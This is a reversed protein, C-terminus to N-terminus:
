RSPSFDRGDGGALVAPRRRPRGAEGAEFGRAEVTGPVGARSGRVGASGPDQAAGPWSVRYTSETLRNVEEPGRSMAAAAPSALAPSRPRAEHGGSGPRRSRRPAASPGELTLRRWLRRGPLAPARRRTRFTLVQLAVAVAAAARSSSLLLPGVRRSRAPSALRGWRLRAPHAPRGSHAPSGWRLRCPCHSPPPGLPRGTTPPDTLGTHAPCLRASGLSGLLEEQPPPHASHLPGWTPPAFSLQTLRGWRLRVPGSPRQPGSGALSNQKSGM